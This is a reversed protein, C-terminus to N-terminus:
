HIEMGRGGGGFRPNVVNNFISGFQYSFGFSTFYNFSTKLQRQQLLIEETSAAGAPLFLQDRVWAYYGGVNVSFGRFLRVSISGNLSVQYLDKDHLYQSGTLSVRTRGWPQIQNVAATLSAATRTEETQLFVTEETYDWHRVNILAQLTFARRSSESYPVFNYEIGPSINWRLDENHRTSRGAGVRAGVSWQPTLSKVLLSSTSWDEILSVIPPEGEGIEFTSERRSFRGSINFKWAESTRNASLNGSYSSSSLSSEGNLFANGGVRFVWFDWPDDQARQSGGPGQQAGNERPGEAGQPGGLSIIIQEAAPTGALYRVLGMKLRGAIAARQEDTTADGATGVTLEQDEGEFDRRGIFALTYMRGGGGTTQSTILVHLDSVERDRVWNVVPVERRFFDMDRCGSGQCDFFLNLAEENAVPAEQPAASATSPFLLAPLVATWVFRM